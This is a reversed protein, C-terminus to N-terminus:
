PFTGTRGEGFVHRKNGQCNERDRKKLSCVGAGTPLLSTFTKKYLQWFM